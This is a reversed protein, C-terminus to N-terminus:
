SPPELVASVWVASKLSQGDLQALFVSALQARPRAINGEVIRAEDVRTAALIFEGHPLPIAKGALDFSGSVVLGPSSLHLSQAQALGFLLSGALVGILMGM